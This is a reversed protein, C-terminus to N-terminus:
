NYINARSSKLSECFVNIDPNKRKSKQCVRSHGFAASPLLMVWNQQDDKRKHCLTCYGTSCHKMFISLSLLYDFIDLIAFINHMTFIDIIAFINLISFPNYSLLLFSPSNVITDCGILNIKTSQNTKWKKTSTM